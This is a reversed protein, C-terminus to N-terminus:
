SADADTDEDTRPDARRLRLLLWALAAAGLVALLALDPVADGLRQAWQQASFETEVGVSFGFAGSLGATGETLLFLLGIGVLLAGSVLNTTHVEVRGLRLPRGRLWRRRGLAFRDWLAALLLLPATMGLAYVALLAGGRVPGGSVAAVTLIGGLIPGSCFGALGYVAGLAFVALPDQGSVRAQLRRLPTLSLGGGFVQLVGLVVLVVGAVLVLTDRHGYVVTSAFSAAAGLPVLTAALGLYFVGTRAVLRGTGGFAYAFFSPLLLASCPSLLALVGGAFAALYGISSM